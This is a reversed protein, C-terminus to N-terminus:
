QSAFRDQGQHLNQVHPERLHDSIKTLQQTGIRDSPFDRMILCITTAKLQDHLNFNYDSLQIFKLFSKRHVKKNSTGISTLPPFVQGLHTSQLMSVNLSNIDRKVLRRAQAEVKILM